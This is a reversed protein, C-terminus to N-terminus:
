GPAPRPSPTTGPWATSSRQRWRMVKAPMNMGLVAVVGARRTRLPRRVQREEVSATSSRSTATPAPAGPSRCRATTSTPGSGRCRPSRSAPAAPSTPWCRAPPTPARSSPTTGTSSASRASTPHPWRAVDGAAVVGPAALCTADCVVGDDLTLGSGDLWAPSRPSASASSSSTPTSSTGDALRVTSSGDDGHRRHRRRRHRPPRRRRPRPAPRRHRRGDAEGLGRVVPAPSRSSSPSTSAPAAPRHGGGRLRHVRRRRRRGPAPAPTSTPGCRPATTSAHAPRARRRPRALRPHTAPHRRHRHRRRRLRAHRGDDLTLRRGAVDLATARVGLQWEADLDDAVDLSPTRPRGPAPWCRSAVAAAPRLAPAARRRRDRAATSARARAAGRGGAPRGAVRRRRRDDPRSLPLPRGAPRRRRRRHARRRRRAAPPRRPAAARRPGRGAPRGAPGVRGTATPRARVPDGRVARPAGFAFWLRREADLVARLREDAAHAPLGPPMPSTPGTSSAGRRPRRDAAPRARRVPWRGRGAAADALETRRRRRPSRPPRGQRQGQEPLPHARMNAPSADVVAHGRRPVRPPRRRARVRWSAAAARHTAVGGDDVGALLDALAVREDAVAAWSRPRDM